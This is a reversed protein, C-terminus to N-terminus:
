KKLWQKWDKELQDVTKPLGEITPLIEDMSKQQVLGDIIAKICKDGAKERMFACLSSIEAYFEATKRRDEAAKPDASTKVIVKAGGESSKADEKRQAIDEDSMGPHTMTFLEKLPFLSSAAKAQEMRDKALSETECVIAIAEDAWDQLYPSGYDGYKKMAKRKAEDFTKVQSDVFHVLLMHGVEHTLPRSKKMQEIVQDMYEEPVQGEVMKRAQAESIWPLYIKADGKSKKDRLDLTIPPPTDGFLKGFTSYAFKVDRAIDEKESPKVDGLIVFNEDLIFAPPTSIVGSSVTLSAVLALLHVM